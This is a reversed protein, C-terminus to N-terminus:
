KMEGEQVSATASITKGDGDAAVKLKVVYNPRGDGEIQLHLRAVHVNGKPLDNGTSFAALIVRNHSLAAPDYYPPNKFAAHEGGEIGVLKVDNDNASFELQYAALPEGKSDVYIDVHTFRVVQDHSPNEVRAPSTQMPQFGMGSIVAMIVLLFRM